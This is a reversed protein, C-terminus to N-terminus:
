AHNGSLWRSAGRSSTELEPISLLGHGETCLLEFGNWELFNHSPRGVRIPEALTRLCHKCRLSCDLVAWHFAILALFAFLFSQLLFAPFWTFPHFPAFLDASLLFTLPLLLAIKCAHFIRTKIWNRLPLSRAEVSIPSTFLGVIVIPLSGLVFSPLSSEIMAAFAKLNGALIFVPLSAVSLLLALLTLCLSASGSLNLRWNEKRLWAADLLLGRALNHKGCVPGRRSRLHCLEAHWHRLWEVRNSEPVLRQGFRILTRDGPPLSSCSVPKM